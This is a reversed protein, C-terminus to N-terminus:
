SKICSSNLPPSNEIHQLKRRLFLNLDVEEDSASSFERVNWWVQLLLAWVGENDWKKISFFEFLKEWIYNKENNFFNEARPSIYNIKRYSRIHMCKHPLLTFSKEREWERSTMSNVTEFCCVDIYLLIVSNGTFLLYPLREIIYGAGYSDGYKRWLLWTYFIRSIYLAGYSVACGYYPM